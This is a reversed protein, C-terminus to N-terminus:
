LNKYTIKDIQINAIEKDEKYFIIEVLEDQYEFKIKFDADKDEIKIIQMKESFTFEVNGIHIKHDNIIQDKHEYLTVPHLFSPIDPLDKPYIVVPKPQDPMEFVLVSDLFASIFPTPHMGFLGTDYVDIKLIEENKRITINKRFAFRKYNAEIIGDIRINEWSQLHELLLIEQQVVKPLTACGALFVFFFYTLINAKKLKM